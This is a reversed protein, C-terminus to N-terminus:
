SHVADCSRWVSPLVAIENSPLGGFEWCSTPFVKKVSGDARVGLVKGRTKGGLMFFNRSGKDFGDYGHDMCRVLVDTTPDFTPIPSNDPFIESKRKLANPRVFPLALVYMDRYGAEPNLPCSRPLHYASVFSPGLLSQTMPFGDNDSSYLQYATSIQKLNGACSPLTRQKYQEPGVVLLVISALLMIIALVTIMEAITTWHKTYSKL